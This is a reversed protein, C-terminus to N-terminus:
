MTNQGFLLTAVPAPSLGQRPAPLPLVKMENLEESHEKRDPLEVGEQM